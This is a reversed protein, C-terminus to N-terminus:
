SSTGSKRVPKYFQALRYPSVGAWYLLQLAIWEAFMMVFNRHEFRRSSTAMKHPLTRFKGVRRIRRVLDVDEFLPYPRFGGVADYVAKRVFVGSDGYCLGLWRLWPYIATLQRASRSQGDFCLSFNGGATREDRLSEEIAALAGPSPISDAHLFWLVDGDAAEAGTKQQLGRGKASKVVRGFSQAIRATGDTSGGDALIIEFPGLRAAAALTSEICAEENLAPVIISVRM